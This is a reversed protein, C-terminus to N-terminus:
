ALLSLGCKCELNPSHALSLAGCLLLPMLLCAHNSLHVQHPVCNDPETRISDIDAAFLAKFPICTHACQVDDPIWPESDDARILSDQQTLMHRSFLLIAVFMVPFAPLLANGTQLNM